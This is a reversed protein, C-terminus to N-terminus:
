QQQQYPNQAYGLHSGNHNLQSYPHKDQEERIKEARLAKYQVILGILLLVFFAGVYCWFWPDIEKILGERILKAMQFENYYHGAYM